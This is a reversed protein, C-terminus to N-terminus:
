STEAPHQTAFVAYADLSLVPARQAGELGVVADRQAVAGVAVGPREAVVAACLAEALWEAAAREERLKAELADCLAM